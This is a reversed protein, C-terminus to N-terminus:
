KGASFIRDKTNGTLTEGDQEIRYQIEVGEQEALLEVLTRMLDVGRPPTGTYEM